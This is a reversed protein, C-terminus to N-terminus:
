AATRCTVDVEAIDLNTDLIIALNTPVTGPQSLSYNVIELAHNDPYFFAAMQSKIAYNEDVYFASARILYINRAAFVGLGTLRSAEDQTIKVFARNMLQAKAALQEAMLVVHLKNDPIKASQGPRPNSPNIACWPGETNAADGAYALGGFLVFSIVSLVSRLGVVAIEKRNLSM